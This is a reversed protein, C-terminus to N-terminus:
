ELPPFLVGAEFVAADLAVVRGITCFCVDFFSFFSGIVPGFLVFFVVALFVCFSNLILGSLPSFIYHDTILEKNESDTKDNKSNGKHENVVLKIVQCLGAQHSIDSRAFRKLKALVPQIKQPSKNRRQNENGATQPARSPRHLPSKIFLILIIEKNMRKM